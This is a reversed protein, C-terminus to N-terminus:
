AEILHQDLGFDYVVMLYAETKKEVKEWEGPGLVIQSQIIELVIRPTIQDESPDNETLKEYESVSQERANEDDKATM